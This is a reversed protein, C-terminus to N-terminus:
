SYQEQRCFPLHGSSRFPWPCFCVLGESVRLLYRKVEVGNKIISCKGKGFGNQKVLKTGIMTGM